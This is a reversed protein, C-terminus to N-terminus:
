AALKFLDPFALDMLLEHTALARRTRPSPYSKGNLIESLSSAALPLSKAFEKETLHARAIRDRVL